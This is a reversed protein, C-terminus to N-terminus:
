GSLASLNLQSTFSHLGRGLHTEKGGQSKYAWWKNRAALWCVGAVRASAPRRAAPAPASAAATGTGRSVMADEDEEGGDDEEEDDHQRRPQHARPQGQVWPSVSTGM